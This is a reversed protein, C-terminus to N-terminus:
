APVDELPAHGDSGQDDEDASEGIGIVQRPTDLL